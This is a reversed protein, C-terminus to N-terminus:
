PFDRLPVLKTFKVGSKSKYECPEQLAAILMLQMPTNFGQQPFLGDDRIGADLVSMLDPSWSIRNWGWDGPTGQIAGQYLLQRIDTPIAAGTPGTITQDIMGPGAGQITPMTNNGKRWLAEVQGSPMAVPRSNVILRVTTSKPTTSDFQEARGGFAAGPIVSDPDAFGQAGILTGRMFRYLVVVRAARALESYFASPTGYATAEFSHAAMPIGNYSAATAAFTGGGIGGAMVSAREVQIQVQGRPDKRNPDPDGFLGGPQGSVRVAGGVLANIAEARAAYIEQLSPKTVVISHTAEIRTVHQSNVFAQPQQDVIRYAMTYGDELNKVQVNQRHTGPTRPPLLLRRMTDPHIGGTGSGPGVVLANFHVLGTYTRTLFFDESISDEGKWVHALVALKPNEPCELKETWQITYEVLVSGPGNFGVITCALPKPGLEVDLADLPPVGVVNALTFDAFVRTGVVFRFPRRPTMLRDRLAILAAAGDAGIVGVQAGGAAISGLTARAVTVLATLTHRFGKCDQGVFIPSQSYQRTQVFGM